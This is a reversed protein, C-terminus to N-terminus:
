KFNSVFIRIGGAPLFFHRLPQMCHLVPQVTAPFPQMTKKFPRGGPM